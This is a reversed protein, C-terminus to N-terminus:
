AERQEEERNSWNLNKARQGQHNEARRDKQCGSFPKEPTYIPINNACCIFDCSRQNNYTKCQELVRFKHFSNM